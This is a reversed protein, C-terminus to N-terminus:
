LDVILGPWQVTPPTGAVLKVVWTPVNVDPLRNFVFRLVSSECVCGPGPECLLTAWKRLAPVLSIIQFKLSLFSPSHLGREDLIGYRGALESTRVALGSFTSRDPDRALASLVRGEWLLTGALATNALSEFRVGAQEFLPGLIPPLGRRTVAGELSGRM